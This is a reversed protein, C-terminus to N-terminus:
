RKPELERAIAALLRSEAESVPADLEFAPLPLAPRLADRRHVRLFARTVRVFRDTGLALAVLDPGVARRPEPRVVLLSGDPLTGELGALLHDAPDAFTSRAGPAGRALWTAVTLAGHEPAVDLTLGSSALVQEIAGLTEEGSAEVLLDVPHLTIM